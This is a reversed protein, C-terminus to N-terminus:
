ERTKLVSILDLRDLRRRVVAASVASAIIIVLVAKGFATPPIVFPLRFLETEFAQVIIAVLGYGALCGLPLAIMVLLATEGILIYSVEARTFGLVRLTALERGRESLAVRAANYVVGYALASSFLVFFGSFILITEGITEFMTQIANHKVTVTALGPLARLADYLPGEDAADVLLSAYEFSPPDGLLRNLQALSVYAPMAIWTEHIGAVTLEFRRHDRELIEVEVTDGPKVDLKEALLRGLVVGGTPVPVKWGRVDHILQLRSDEPLATLGGRHRTRGNTIDAAVLRMPEVALVGPLSLLAHRASDARTGRFGVVMDQHQSQQFHNRVLLYIADNWQMAMVLVAVSLAVGVVTVGARLPNRIIHRLIIRTPSDLAEVVAHPLAVERFREPAPPRMAQAPVLRLVQRVAGIAGLLGAGFAVIASLAFETGSPRYFLFPFRFFQTYIETNYRGLAAGAGWGLLVGVATMALALMTYHWGVQLDTYGFAKMLAIERREVTIIRALIANTLFAAVSLFIGPLITAMTRLQDFENMLFWNSIQDARAIAGSGGHDELLDDLDTIVPKPDVDRLLSLTVDNFAGQMDYAAALTERGMWVIGYRRDDPMLGGPAIAYVFEPSLAIGVVRVKRQTGNLLVRISDGPVLGHAQAFPAHLVAEDDRDALPSRGTLLAFRNLLPERDDPVSLLHAMVPESMSAIEVTTLASIRTEVTQVGPIRAIRDTLRMPARRVGAFVEAFSYREYYADTTAQLSTLTSLSMVLLAVGSAVVLAVAFVQGRLRLLDRLLKRNLPHM